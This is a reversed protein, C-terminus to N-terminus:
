FYHKHCNNTKQILCVTHIASLSSLSGDYIVKKGESLSLTHKNWHKGAQRKIETKNSQGQYHEKNHRWMLSTINTSSLIDSVTLVLDVEILEIRLIVPAPLRATVDGDQQLHPM